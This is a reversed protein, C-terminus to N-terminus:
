EKQGGKTDSFSSIAENENYNSTEVESVKKLTTQNASVTIIEDNTKTFQDFDVINGKDTEVAIKLCLGQLIKTMLKFADPTGPAPIERNQIIASYAARKGIVDDSKITM